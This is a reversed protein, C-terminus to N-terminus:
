GSKTVHLDLIEKIEKWTNVWDYNPNDIIYSDIPLRKIINLEVEKRFEFYSVMGEFGSLSHAIGFPSEQIYSIVREMWVQKGEKNVRIDSVKRITEYVSPQRLYILIPNLENVTSILNLLYKKIHEESMCHFLLLENIHNQLFACEFVAMAEGELTQQSFKKWKKIHLDSFTKFGVRNDYVEFSEMLQFFSKDDIPFQTYPFVAYGDEIYMHRKIQMEYKPYEKMICDLKEVPICACWALDAPHGDGEQYLHTKRITSTYEYIRKSITTKGSGPLGEVLILKRM